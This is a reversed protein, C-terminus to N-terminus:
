VAGGIRAPIVVAYNCVDCCQGERVPAANHGHAWGNSQPKIDDGCIVCTPATALILQQPDFVDCCDDFRGNTILEASNIPLFEGDASLFVTVDTNLQDDTMLELKRKLEAYNM